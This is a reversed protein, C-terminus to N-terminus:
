VENLFKMDTYLVPHKMQESVQTPNVQIKPTQNGFEAQASPSKASAAPWRPLM